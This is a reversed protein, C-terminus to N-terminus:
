DNVDPDQEQPKPSVSGDETDGDDPSSSPLPSHHPCPRIFQQLEGTQGGVVMMIRGTDNCYRCTM